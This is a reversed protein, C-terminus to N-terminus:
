GLWNKRLEIINTKIEAEPLRIDTDVETYGEWFTTYYVDDNDDGGMSDYLTEWEAETFAKTHCDHCHYTDGMKYIDEDVVFGVGCLVCCESYTKEM